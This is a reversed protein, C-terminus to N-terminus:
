LSITKCKKLGLFGLLSKSQFYSAQRFIYICQNSLPSLFKTTDTWGFCQMLRCFMEDLFFAVFFQWLANPM